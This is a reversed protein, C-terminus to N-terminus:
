KVSFSFTIQFEINKCDECLEFYINHKRENMERETEANLYIKIPAFHTLHTDPNVHGSADYVPFVKDSIVAM